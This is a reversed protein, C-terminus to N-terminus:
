LSDVGGNQQREGDPEGLAQKLDALRLMRIGRTCVLRKQAHRLFIQALHQAHRSLADVLQEFVPLRAAEYHHLVAFDSQEVAVRQLAQYLTAIAMLRCNKLDMGVM